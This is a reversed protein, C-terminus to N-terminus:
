EGRITDVEDRLRRRAAAIRERLMEIRAEDATHGNGSTTVTAAARSRFARVAVAAAAALIGIGILRRM